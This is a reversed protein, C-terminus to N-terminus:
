FRGPLLVIISVTQPPLRVRRPASVWCTSALTTRVARWRLRSRGARIAVISHAGSGTTGSASASGGGAQSPRGWRGNQRGRRAPPEGAAVSRNCSAVGPGQGQTGPWARPRARRSPAGARGGRRSRDGVCRLRGAASWAGKAAHHSISGPPSRRWFSVKGGTPSKSRGPWM